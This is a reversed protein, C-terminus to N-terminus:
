RQDASLRKIKPNFGATSISVTRPWDSAQTSNLNELAMTYLARIYAISRIGGGEMVLNRYVLPRVSVQAWAALGGASLLPLLLLQWLTLRMM